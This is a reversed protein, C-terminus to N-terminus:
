LDKKLENFDKMYYLSDVNVDKHNFDRYFMKYGLKTNLHMQKDNLSWTRRTIIKSGKKSYEAEIFNYLISAYGKNRHEPSIASLSIYNSKFIHEKIPLKYDINIITFGVMNDFDDFLCVYETNSLSKEEIVKRLKETISGEVNVTTSLPRYFDNDCKELIDIIM